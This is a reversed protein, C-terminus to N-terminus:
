WENIINRFPVFDDTEKSTDVGDNVAIFRINKEPFFIETYYGVELYNRGFRSIDKVLVTSVKQNECDAIMRQFDPRDFTTGSM